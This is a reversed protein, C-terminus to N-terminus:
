DTVQQADDYYRALPLSVSGRPAVHRRYRRHHSRPSFLGLEIPLFEAIERKPLPPMRTRLM